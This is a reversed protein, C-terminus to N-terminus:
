EPAHTRPFLYSVNSFFDWIVENAKVVSSPPGFLRRSLQGRGGPWHHGLGSVIWVVMEVGPEYRWEEVGDNEEVVCSPGGGLARAWRDLGGGLPPRKEQWGWLTSVEGGKLPVLPDERGVLYFTPVPHSPRPEELWCYGSVPAVAALRGAREAALRFAMGAGNSFGTAYVRHGDIPFSHALDALVSELFAVDDVQRPAARARPSGDNWFPPNERFRAPRAPDLPLAEPVVVLFGEQDATTAWLTEELTWRADAGAGPLMLVVPGPQRVDGPPVHVLYRRPVTGQVLSFSHTGPQIGM